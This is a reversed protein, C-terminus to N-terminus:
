GAKAKAREIREDPGDGRPSQAPDIIEVDLSELRVLAKNAPTRRQISLTLLATFHPPPAVFVGVVRGPSTERQVQDFPYIFVARRFDRTTSEGYPFELVSSTGGLDLAVVVRTEDDKDVFGRVDCSYGRFTEASPEQASVPVELVAIRTASNDDTDQDLDVGMEAGFLITSAHGDPSRNATLGGLDPVIPTIAKADGFRTKLEDDDDVSTPGPRTTASAVAALGAAGVAGLATRRTMGDNKM